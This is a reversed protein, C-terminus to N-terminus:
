PAVREAIGNQRYVTDILKMVELADRSTSDEVHRDGLICDVFHEVQLDWSPDDDYYTVEERPNGVAAKEGLRPKRGVLLTERGYSGTKSLLGTVVLYGSELGMELRFTHKWLTASSHLQAIPGTKSRLHVFANDEFPINWFSTAAMSHVEIFDGCFFRFLDLMHIGQDLLIGGGGIAPDNRWSKEFDHGGSKGYVGRLWLLRGMSGGDIIAKADTIAPHHRHNFGFIVRTKPHQKEVSIIREIDALTRGPPKECFVHCGARIADCVADPTTNNPTCVFVVDPKQKLLEHYDSYIPCEVGSVSGSKLPDCIGALQLRPHKAVNRHRIEGMYGYGIIGARLIKSNM